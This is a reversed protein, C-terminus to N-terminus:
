PRHFHQPNRLHFRPGLLMPRISPRFNKRLKLNSPRIFNPSRLHHCRAPSLTRQSHHHNIKVLRKGLSSLTVRSWIHIFTSTAGQNPDDYEKLSKSPVGALAHNHWLIDIYILIGAYTEASSCPHNGPNWSKKSM